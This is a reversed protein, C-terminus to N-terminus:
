QRHRRKHTCRIFQESPDIFLPMSLAIRVDQRTLGIDAHMRDDLHMLQAVERRHLLIRWAKQVMGILNLLSEDVSM